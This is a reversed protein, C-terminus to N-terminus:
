KRFKHKILQSDVVGFACMKINCYDIGAFIEYESDSSVEQYMKKEVVQVMKTTEYCNEYLFLFSRVNM